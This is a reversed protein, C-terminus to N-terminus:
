GGSVEFGMDKVMQKLREFMRRRRKKAIPVTVPHPPAAGRNAGAGTRRVQTGFEYLHSEPSSSKVAGILLTSSPFDVKVGRKMPGDPYAARVESAAGEVEDRVIEMGADRVHKPADTLTRILEDLGKTTVGGAM